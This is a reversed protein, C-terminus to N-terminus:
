RGFNQNMWYRGNQMKYFGCAVTGSTASQMNIWHGHDLFCGSRDQICADVGNPPAGEAWMQALCGNLTDTLTSGSRVPYGPCTNQAGLPRCDGASGHAEGSDGDKKAGMDSCTELEPSARKMPALNLTARYMNITELCAQREAEFEGGGGASAGASGASTGATGPATGAAGSGALGGSAGVGAAGAGAGTSSAQGAGGGRGAASTGATPRPTVGSGANPLGGAGALGAGGGAAASAGARGAGSTGAASVAPGGTGTNSSEPGTPDEPSCASALMLLVVSANMQGLRGNVRRQMTCRLSAAPRLLTLSRM